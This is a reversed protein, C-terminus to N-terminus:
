VFFRFNQAPDNPEKAEDAAGDGQSEIFAVGIKDLAEAFEARESLTIVEYLM